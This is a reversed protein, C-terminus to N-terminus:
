AEGDAYEDADAFSEEAFEDLVRCCNAVPPLVLEPKLIKAVRFIEARHEQSDVLLQYMVRRRLQGLQAHEQYLGLREWVRGTSHALRHLTQLADNPVADFADEAYAPLREGRWYAALALHFRDKGIPGGRVCPEESADIFSIWFLYLTAYFALLFDGYRYLALNSSCPLLEATYWPLWRRGAACDSVFAYVGWNALIQSYGPQREGPLKPTLNLCDAPDLLRRLDDLVNAQLTADDSISLADLPHGDWRYVNTCQVSVIGPDQLPALADVVHQAWGAQFALGLAGAVGPEVAVSDCSGVTLLQGACDRAVPLLVFAATVAVDRPRLFGAPLCRAVAAYRRQTKSPAKRGTEVALAAVADAAGDAAAFSATAAAKAALYAERLMYMGQVAGRAGGLSLLSVDVGSLTVTKLAAEAARSRDSSAHRLVLPKGMQQQLKYFFDNGRGGLDIMLGGDGLTTAGTENMSRLVAADIYFTSGTGRDHAHNALAPVSLKARLAGLNKYVYALLALNAMRECECCTRPDKPPKVRILSYMDPTQSLAYARESESPNSYHPNQRKGVEGPELGSKKARAAALNATNDFGGPNREAATLDHYRNWLGGAHKADLDLRRAIGRWVEKGDQSTFSIYEFNEPVAELLAADAADDWIISGGVRMKFTKGEQTKAHLIGKLKSQYRSTSMFTPEEGTLTTIATIVAGRLGPTKDDAVVLEKHSMEAALRSPPPPTPPTDDVPEPENNSASRTTRKATPAGLKFGM